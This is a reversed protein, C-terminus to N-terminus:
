QGQDTVLHARTWVVITPCGAGHADVGHSQESTFGPMRFESPVSAGNYIEIGVIQGARFLADVEGDGIHAFPHGDVVYMLCPDAGRDTDVSGAGLTHGSQIVPSETLLESFHVANRRAIDDATFFQGLGAHRRRDFGVRAYGAQLRETSVVVPSLVRAATPVTITVHEASRFALEVVQESADFGVSRVVITQTGAPLGRMAFTGDRATTASHQTGQLTVTAHPLPSGDPRQVIGSLVARERQAVPAGPSTRPLHLASMTVIRNDLTLKREVALEPASQFAARLTGTLQAPLGCLCFRGDEGTTAQRHQPAAQVPVVGIADPTWDLTVAVNPIATDNEPDLVRGVLLAPGSDLSQPSSTTGAPQSCLTQRITSGSPIALSVLLPKGADFEVPATVLSIGLSDVVAHYIAVRYRGPPISDVRFRGISDTLATRSNAEVMVVAGVLPGGHLSDGVVGVLSTSAAVPQATPGPQQAFMSAASCAIAACVAAGAMTVDHPRLTDHTSSRHPPQHLTEYWRRAIAIASWDTDDTDALNHLLRWHGM